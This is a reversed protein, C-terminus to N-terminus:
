NAARRSWIEVALYTLLQILLLRGATILETGAAIRSVTMFFLVLSTAISVATMTWGMTHMRRAGAVLRSYPNIGEAM